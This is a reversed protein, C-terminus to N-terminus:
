SACNLRIYSFLSEPIARIDTGRSAIIRGSHLLVLAYRRAEFGRRDKDPDFDVWGVVFSGSPRQCDFYRMEHAHDSGVGLSLRSIM